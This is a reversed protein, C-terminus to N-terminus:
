DRFSLCNVAATTTCGKLARSGLPAKLSVSLPEAVKEATCNKAKVQGSVVISVSTDYESVTPPLVPLTCGGHMLEIQITTGTSGIFTWTVLVPALSISASSPAGTRAPDAASVNSGCAACSSFLISAVAVAAKPSM